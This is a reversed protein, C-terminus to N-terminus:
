RAMVVIPNPSIMRSIMTCQSGTVPPVEPSRSIGPM